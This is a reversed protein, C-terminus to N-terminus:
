EWPAPLQEIQYGVRSVTGCGDAMEVRWSDAFQDVGEIMGITGSMVVTGPRLLSAARLRDIWYRPPLLRAPSGDQILCVEGDREVWGRLTFTDMRDEIEAYRWAVDGIMNPFSQKSWAVGHVELARDTHDCAAAVLIDTEDDGVIM